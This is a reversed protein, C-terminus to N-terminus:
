TVMLFCAYGKRQAPGRAVRAVGFLRFRELEFPFLVVLSLRKWSDHEFGSRDFNVSLNGGSYTVRKKGRSTTLM